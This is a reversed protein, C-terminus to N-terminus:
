IISCTIFYKGNYNKSAHKYVKLDFPEDEMEEAIDILSTWFSQSGTVFVTGAKDVVVYKDYDVTDKSYENHVSIRAWMDPQIILAGDSGENVAEDLQIADTLDKLKITEKKSLEKSAYVVKTSYGEM